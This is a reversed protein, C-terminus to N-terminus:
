RCGVQRAGTLVAGAPALPAPDVGGGGIGTAGNVPQAGAVVFPVAVIALVVGGADQWRFRPVLICRVRAFPIAEIPGIKAPGIRLYGALSSDMQFPDVLIVDSSDVLQVTIERPPRKEASFMAQPTLYVQARSGGCGLLAIALSLSALWHAERM